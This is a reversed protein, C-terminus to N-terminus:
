EPAPNVAIEGTPLASPEEARGGALLYRTAAWGVALASAVGILGLFAAQPTAKQAAQAVISLSAYVAVFPPIVRLDFRVVAAFLLTAVLGVVLGAAAIDFWQEANIATIAASTLMLLAAALLRRRTWGETIRNLWDLAVIAFGILPLFKIAALARALWPLWTNEVDYKSWLPASEPTVASVAVDVGIAVLALAAGRLWLARADLGPNIHIRATLAAVGVFMSGALATLVAGFLQAGGALAVQSLVPETTKLNMAQGPWQNIAGVISAGLLLGVSWFFARRDFHDRTWALTAGILAAIALLAFALAVAIRVIGLRSARDREARNWAEPVFIYRGWGVVEDGALAVVARAEGGKGADVRPDTYIFQWDTRSPHPDQKVEVEKLAAPDLGLLATLEKRALARAQDESLRAGAREEPLHHDVHRVSGDGQIAVRWEEARDAVDAGSFRAYRVEWLPPALWTGVLKRYAEKGAERWVFKNWTWASGDETAQRIAAFRKWEPGLAIGREKLAADAIAEAQARDIKLPPADSKFSGSFAFLAFGALALLPLARQVRTTWVGAGARQGRAARAANALTPQWAANLLNDSLALWRGALARRWLVVALPFLAAFVVLGRNLNAGPGAVLFVPLSMLTLDFLGHLIITPLLGFRLFILGWILAPVFLEVLRSYAPFGPYNAHASAFVLAEIILTAAILMRQCGFRAGIIAALSLPVARFLCEEMFGAQLAQGIPALAPLASGLINPDSLTESPQWWGYYTNTVFYFGAILALEVPVFLYGGLTRGLIAGTPAADRSWIRWLQPQHPFAKRSLSEAAMFVLALGLGGGILMLAAIGVQQGWFVATSQATDYSFWAQPSNALMAAADLGAVVAGAVLAPKWLLWRRRMLWVVGIICGGLGYLVGAALSAVRAITNNASRLEEFNRGFAEPVHVFRTVETLADGSVSLQLRIHAEGLVVDNREYVFTHDVRGNPRQLHSQELLKYPTFDVAWDAHASAEAISRAAAADLAPGPATEPVYRRFGDVTGDPRFRVHAEATERPRFLRVEWTFPSYVEGSLLRTFASKGGGELEVYNQTQADHSFIVARQADPPALHLREAIVGAEELAQERSMRVDLNILPLAEPFYRWALVASVASLLAFAAWFMPRTTIRSM